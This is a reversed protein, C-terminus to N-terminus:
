RRGDPDTTAADRVPEVRDRSRREFRLGLLLYVLWVAGLLWGAIVDSPWHVGMTMRGFPVVTAIFALLTIAVIKEFWGTASKVWLAILLGYVAFTKGTHGSPFAHFGPSAVGNYLVDPRARDWSLWGIRVIPDIVLYALM